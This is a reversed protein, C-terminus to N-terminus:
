IKIRNYKNKTRTNAPSKKPLACSFEVLIMKIIPSPIPNVCIVAPIYKLPLLVEKSPKVLIPKDLVCEEFESTVSEAAEPVAM